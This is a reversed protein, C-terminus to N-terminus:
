TLQEHVTIYENNVWQKQQSKLKLVLTEEM